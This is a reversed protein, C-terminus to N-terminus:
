KCMPAFLKWAQESHPNGAYHEATATKVVCDSMRSNAADQADARWFLLAGIILFALVVVLRWAFTM